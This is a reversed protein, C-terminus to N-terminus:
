REESELERLAHATHILARVNHYAAKWPSAKDGSGLPKGERTLHAQWGGHEADVQHERIFKWQKRFAEFYRPDEKGYRAHMLALANLGEAQTWWVKTRDHAPAFAEGKEFFGGLEHDFGWQLAHDVLMRAMRWTAADEPRGLAESAEVLLFATEIDHGFSDHAPVPRWAPTFFLNLCGPEVAITDRVLALLEELRAELLSDPWVRYLATFAELLHIHSNMSKFGVLTGIGDLEIDERDLIPRGERTLWEFYGLHRDDHAHRDLWRFTDKALKLAGADGTRAHVAAAAYIAFSIGYAHKEAGSGEPLEGRPGLRFHIGGHEEDRMKERLFRLGHRAYGLLEDRREPVAAAAEAATWTMRAQYVLFKGGRPRPSWDPGFSELFGGAERDVSRPYWRELVAHLHAEMADALRAYDAPAPSSPAPTGTEIEAAAAMGLAAAFALTITSLRVFIPLM